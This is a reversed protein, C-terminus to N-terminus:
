LKLGPVSAFGIMPAPNNAQYRDGLPQANGYPYVKGSADAIWYGLSGPTSDM